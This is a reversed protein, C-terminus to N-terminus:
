ALMREYLRLYRPVGVAALDFHQLAVARAARARETYPVRLQDAVARVGDDLAADSTDSLILCGEQGRLAGVDGIGENAVLTLGSALYEANKTPSSGTKSFCPRIFSLGVDGCALARPMDAPAVSAVRLADGWGAADALARLSDTNARTLVMFVLEPLLARLKSAFQVMEREMYWSGLTGSYILVPRDGLGHEQRARARVDADVRYAATDVCCPVAEMPTQAPVLAHERLWRALADTLVVIGNSQAFLRREVRKVLRYKYSSERWHGADVYEDGLMGRCDFLLKSRPSLARIADGVAAPLYSRTHIIDPRKQLSALLGQAVGNGAEFLKRAFSHSRSRVLPRWAIGDQRMRARLQELQETTTGVPEFSVIEIDAGHAALGRLYPLVQSQGLPEVMGTHSLYLTRM